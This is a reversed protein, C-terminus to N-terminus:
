PANQNVTIDTGDAVWIRCNEGNLFLHTYVCVRVSGGLDAPISFTWSPQGATSVKVHDTYGNETTININAGPDGFSHHPVNVTLKYCSDHPHLTM